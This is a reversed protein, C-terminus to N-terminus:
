LKDGLQFVNEKTILILGPSIEGHFVDKSEM